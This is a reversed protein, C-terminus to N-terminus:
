LVAYRLYYIPPSATKYLKYLYYNRGDALMKNIAELSTFKQGQAVIATAINNHVISEAPYEMIHFQGALVTLSLEEPDATM